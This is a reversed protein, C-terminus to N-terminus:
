PNVSNFKFGADILNYTPIPSGATTITLTELIVMGNGAVLSVPGVVAPQNTAKWLASWTATGSASATIADPLTGVRVETSDYSGGGRYAFTVSSWQLLLDGSRAAHWPSNPQDMDNETPMTGKYVEVFLAANFGQGLLVNGAFTDDWIIAM